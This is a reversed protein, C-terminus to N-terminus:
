INTIVINGDSILREVESDTAATRIGDTLDALYNKINGALKLISEDSNTNTTKIISSDKQLENDFLVSSAGILPLEVPYTKKEKTFGYIVNNDHASDQLMRQMSEVIHQESNSESITFDAEYKKGEDEESNVPNEKKNIAILTQEGKWKLTDPIPINSYIKM